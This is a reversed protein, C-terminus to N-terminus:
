QFDFIEVDEVNKIERMKKAIKKHNAGIDLEAAGDKNGAVIRFVGKIKELSEIASAKPKKGTKNFRFAIM